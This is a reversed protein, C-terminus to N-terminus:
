SLNNRLGRRLLGDGIEEMISALLIPSNCFLATPNQTLPYANPISKGLTNDKREISKRQTNM